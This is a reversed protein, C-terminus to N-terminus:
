GIKQKMLDNCIRVADAASHGIGDAGVDDAFGENPAAGGIILGYEGRTGKGELFDFVDKCYPLCTTLLTSMGIIDAGESEARSVIESPSVNIGLDIVEFGNVRLMLVVMNKGIDHLDGQVTAMVVKGASRAKEGAGREVAPNIVEENVRSVIDAAVVMEPLFVELEEFRRGIETLGPSIAHDFFEIPAAGGDMVGQAIEIAQDGGGDLLAELFASEVSEWDLASM